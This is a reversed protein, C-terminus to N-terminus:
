FILETDSYIIQVTYERIQFITHTNDRLHLIISINWSKLPLVVAVIMEKATSSFVIM